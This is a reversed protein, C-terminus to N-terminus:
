EDNLLDDLMDETLGQAEAYDSIADMVESLTRQSPAITQRLVLEVMIRAKRQQEPSAQEYREVLQADLPISLTAINM